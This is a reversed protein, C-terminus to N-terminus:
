ALQEIPLSLTFKSGKGIESEVNIRGKHERSVQYCIALGLGTGVNLDWATYGPDFIRDIDESLIGRGDDSVSFNIEDGQVETRLVIEGTKEIARNANSLLQFCLQNIKAPYCTIAPLDALEKRIRIEPKLHFQFMDLTNEICENLNVSQLDAEDLQAFIKLRKVIGTIRESSTRIVDSAGSIANMIHSLKNSESIEIEHEDKLTRMLKETASALTNQTSYVAGVPTNMEHAVGAVLHGLAAMKESQILQAQTERLHRTREDVKRELNLNLELVKDSQHNVIAVFFFIAMVSTGLYSTSHWAESSPSFFLAGGYGFVLWLLTGVSLLLIFRKEPSNEATRYAKFAMAFLYVFIVAFLPFMLKGVPGLEMDWMHEPAQPVIVMFQTFVSLLICVSIFILAYFRFYRIKVGLVREGMRKDYGTFAFFFLIIAIPVLFGATFTIRMWLVINDMTHGFQFMAFFAFSDIALALALFSFVRNINERTRFLWTIVSLVTCLIGSILMPVSHINMM